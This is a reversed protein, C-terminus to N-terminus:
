KGDLSNLFDDEAKIREAEQRELERAKANIETESMKMKIVTPTDPEVIDNEKVENVERKSFVGSGSMSGTPVISDYIEKADRLVKNEVRGDFARISHKNHLINYAGVVNSNKIDKGIGIKVSPDIGEERMGEFSIAAGIKDFSRKKLSPQYMDKSLLYKHAEAISEVGRPLKNNARLVECLLEISWAVLQSMSKIIKGESEWYMILEALSVISVRAQVPISAEQKIESNM